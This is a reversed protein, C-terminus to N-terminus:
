KEKTISGESNTKKLSQQFKETLEKLDSEAQKYDTAEITLKYVPASIYKIETNEKNLSILMEKIIEIGNASSNQVIIKASIRVKTPKIKEQIIELLATETKKSIKLKQLLSSNDAIEQLAAYLLGYEELFKNGVEEYVEKLTKGIKKSLAELIKEAKQEQKYENNKNIRQAQNVRRLSLEFYNREKNVNLVKCVIKKGEKVFDRINRIRGPSVESIHIMGEYNVYEDLVVFVSNHTVDKVTCLVIDGEEPPETKKYFM